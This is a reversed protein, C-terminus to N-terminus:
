KVCVYFYYTMFANLPERNVSYLEFQVGTIMKLQFKHQLPQYVLSIHKSAVECM